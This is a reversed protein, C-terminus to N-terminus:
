KTAIKIAKKVDKETSCDCFRSQVVGAAVPVPFSVMARSPPETNNFRDRICM